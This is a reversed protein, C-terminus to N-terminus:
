QSKKGEIAVAVTSTITPEGDQAVPEPAPQPRLDVIVATVNDSSGLIIAENCLIRALNVFDDKAADVLRAVDDNQLVDFIGDSGLVLFEDTGGVIDREYLEPECTVYPQLSIDGIARSVALVGNVRWQGWHVVKGGLRKIRAMEDERNPKHDVSMRVARGGRQVLVARSDGANAVSIRRGGGEVASVLAAVATTGDNFSFQRALASFEADTRFFANTLAEKPDLKLSLPDKSAHQLLHEKCYQAARSGGHGDFVGYLATTEEGGRIAQYRDEQYPRGGRESWYSVPYGVGNKRTEVPEHVEEKQGFHQLLQSACLFLVRLGLWLVVVFVFLQPLQMFQGM